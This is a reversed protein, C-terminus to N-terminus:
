PVGKFAMRPAAPRDALARARRALLGQGQALAADVLTEARAQDLYGTRRAELELLVFDVELVQIAAERQEFYTRLDAALEVASDHRGLAGQVRVHTLDYIAQNITPWRRDGDSAFGQAPLVRRAEEARGSELLVRALAETAAPRVVSAADQRTLTIAERAYREAEAVQGAALLGRSLVLKARAIRPVEGRLERSRLTAWSYAVAKASEAATLAVSGLAELSADVMVQNGLQHFIHLAQRFSKKAESPNGWISRAYGLNFAILGRTHPDLDEILTEAEEYAALAAQIDGVLMSARGLHHLSTAIKGRNGLGRRIELAQQFLVRAPPESDHTHRAFALALASLSDAEGSRDGIERTISLSARLLPEGAARGEHSFAQAGLERLADAEASRDGTERSLVLASEAAGEARQHDGRQSLWRSLTLRAQGEGARDRALEFRRQAISLATEAAEIQGDEHLARAELLRARAEVGPALRGRGLALASRAAELAKSRDGMALAVRGGLLVLRPDKESATVDHPIAEVVELAEAMRGAEVLIELQAVAYELSAPELLRLAKVRDIAEDFRRELAHARAELWLREEGRLTGARALASTVAIAADRDYGLDAHVEAAALYPWPARPALAIAEEFRAIAARFDMRQHLLLGQFYAPPLANTIRSEISAPDIRPDAPTPLDLDQRLRAVALTVLEGLREPTGREVVGARIKGDNAATALLDVRLEPADGDAILYHGSIVIDVEFREHLRNLVEATPSGSRDLDLKGISRSVVDAPVLDLETTAALETTLLHAAAHGIWEPESDIGLRTLTLVVARTDPRGPSGESERNAASYVLGASSLAVAAAVISWRLPSWRRSAPEDIPEVPAILRYGRRHRTQIYRPAKPDDGLASRLESICRALGGEEVATDPWLKAFLEERTRTSGPAEALFLLLDMAKPRLRHREDGRSVISTAPDVVWDALRFALRPESVTSRKM